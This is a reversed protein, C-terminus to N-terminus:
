SCNSVDVTVLGTTGNYVAQCNAPTTPTNKPTITVATATTFSVNFDSLDIAVDIGGSVGTPIGTSSSVAVGNVNTPGTGNVLWASKTIAVAAKLGGAVGQVTSKRAGSGLDAFKPLATAALIGLIVIVMILEILTFGQQTSRKMKKGKSM